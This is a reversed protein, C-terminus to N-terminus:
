VRGFPRRPVDNEARPRGNADNEGSLPLSSSEREREREREGRVFFTEGILAAIPSFLSFGKLSLPFPPLLSICRNGAIRLTELPEIPPPPPSAPLVNNRPARARSETLV